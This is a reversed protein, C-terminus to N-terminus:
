IFSKKVVLVLFLYLSFGAAIITSVKLILYSNPITNNLIGLIFFVLIGFIFDLLINIPIYNISCIKKIEITNLIYSTLSTVFLTIAYSYINISKIGTLFYLLIVEEISVIFSNILIKTQKELGSLISYTSVSAYLIPACISNSIIFFGIDDRGYFLKGLDDSICMCIIMSAIGIYFSLNIVENVRKEVSYYDKKNLNKSIEPVLVTSMSIIVAIPFFSINSAMGTFKGILSLSDGHSFGAVMLRRPVILTGLTSLISTLFGNVCLPVSVVLTDFLLQGSNEHTAKENINLKRKSLLYAGYLLLLSMLEGFTLAAYVAAIAKEMTSFVLINVIGVVVLVRIAKEFIDIYAPIQSKSIGYFYGKYVSSLSIFVLAPCIIELSYITRSDKILIGSIFNANFFISFGIFLSWFTEFIIITHILKCINLYNKNSHLISTKRSISIIIGGCAACSFLDYVPMVLSYLGLGEAGLKDSLIMSFIFRLVGTALNSVTLILTDKYFLDFKM